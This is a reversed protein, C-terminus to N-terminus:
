QTPPMEKNIPSPQIWAAFLGVNNSEYGVWAFGDEGWDKGWSNKILWAKRADDWGVLMVVHNLSRNNQGNFVGSKYVSFCYDAWIPVALPGYKILAAKLQEVSPMKDFTDNVYGWALARDGATLLLDSNKMLRPRADPGELPVVHIGGRVVKRNQLPDTCISKRGTYEEIFTTEDQDWVLRDPIHPVHSNVMFAFASGHWGATCDGKTKSICNLMQQVSPQRRFYSNEPVIQRLLTDGTRLQELEWSSRYVSVSAFAWCSGCKGQQMVQGVELGRERWDFKPLLHWDSTNQLDEFQNYLRIYEALHKRWIENTTKRLAEEPTQSKLRYKQFRQWEEETSKRRKERYDLLQKQLGAVKPSSLDDTNPIELKGLLATHETREIAGPSAAVSIGRRSTAKRRPATKIGFPSDGVQYTPKEKASTQECLCMELESPPPKKNNLEELDCNESQQSSVFSPKTLVPMIMISIIILLTKIKM